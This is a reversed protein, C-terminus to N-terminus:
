SIPSHIKLGTVSELHPGQPFTKSFTPNSPRKSRQEYTM